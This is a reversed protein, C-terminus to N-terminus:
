LPLPVRYGHAKWQEQLWQLFPIEDSGLDAEHPIRYVNLNQWSKPKETLRALDKSTTLIANCGAQFAATAIETCRAEDLDQHDDFRLTVAAVGGQPFRDSHTSFAEFEAPEGIGSFVL